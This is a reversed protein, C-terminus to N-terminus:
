KSSFVPRNAHRGFHSARLLDLMPQTSLMERRALQCRWLDSYFSRVAHSVLDMICVAERVVLLPADVCRCCDAQVGQFWNHVQLDRYQPHPGVIDFPERAVVSSCRFFGRAGHFFLRVLM